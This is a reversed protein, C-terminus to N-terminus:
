QVITRDEAQSGLPETIGFQEIVSQFIHPNHFEQQNKIQAAWSQNQNNHTTTLVAALKEFEQFRGNSAADDGDASSSNQSATGGSLPDRTLCDTGWSLMSESQALPLDPAAVWPSPLHNRALFSANRKDSIEKRSNDGSTNSLRQKKTGDKDSPLGTPSHPHKPTQTRTRMRTQTQTPETKEEDESSSCSDVGDGLLSPLSATRVEQKTSASSTPPQHGTAAADAKPAQDSSSSDDSDSGYGALLADMTGTAIITTAVFFFTITTNRRERSVQSQPNPM